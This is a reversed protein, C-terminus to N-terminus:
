FKVIPFIKSSLFDNIDQISDGARIKFILRAKEENLQDGYKEIFDDLRYQYPLNNKPNAM